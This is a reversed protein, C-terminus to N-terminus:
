TWTSSPRPPRFWQATKSSTASTPIGEEGIPTELSIPVQMIKLVKCVKAAPIDMRKAVEASTPERGLERVLQRSTRILKSVIEVM